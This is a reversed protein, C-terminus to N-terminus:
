RCLKRRRAKLERLKDEYKQGQARSYGARMRSEMTRIQEKVKACEAKSCKDHADAPSHLMLFVLLMGTYTKM